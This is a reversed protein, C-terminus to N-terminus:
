YKNGLLGLDDAFAEIDPASLQNVREYADLLWYEDDSNGVHQLESAETPVYDWYGGNVNEKIKAKLWDILSDRDIIGTDALAEDTGPLDLSVIRSVMKQLAVNEKISENNSLKEIDTM